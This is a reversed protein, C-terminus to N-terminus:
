AVTEHSHSDVVIVMVSDIDKRRQINKHIVMEMTSSM